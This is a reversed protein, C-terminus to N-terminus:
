WLNKFVRQIYYRMYTLKKESRETGPKIEPLVIPERFLSPDFGNFTTYTWTKLIVQSRLINKLINESVVRDDTHLIDPHFVGVNYSNIFWDYYCVPNETALLLSGTYGTYRIDRVFNEPDDMFPNPEPPMNEKLVKPPKPPAANIFILEITEDRDLDDCLVDLVDKKSHFEAREREIKGNRVSCEAYYGTRDYIESLWLCLADSCFGSQNKPVALISGYNRERNQKQM